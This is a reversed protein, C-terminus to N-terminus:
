FVDALKPTVSLLYSTNSTYNMRGGISSIMKQCMGKIIGRELELRAMMLQSCQGILIKNRSFSKAGM